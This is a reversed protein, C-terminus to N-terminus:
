FNVHLLYIYKRPKEEMLRCDLSVSYQFCKKKIMTVSRIKHTSLHFNLM